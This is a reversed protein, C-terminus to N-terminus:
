WRYRSPFSIASGNTSFQRTARFLFFSLFLPAMTLLFALAVIAYVYGFVSRLFTFAVKVILAVAIYFLPPFVIMMIAIVAFIANKCGNPDQKSLGAADTAYQMTKGLFSDLYKYIDAGTADAGGQDKFLLGGMVISIGERAGTVLFRYGIGILYEAQTAFVWVFAIKILFMQFERATAPIIGTTFGIGFFVVAITLVANIAPIAEQIIGCYMSGMLNASLHEMNCVLFSFVNDFAIAHPCQNGPDYLTGSAQGNSCSFNGWGGAAQAFAPHAFLLIAAAFFLAWFLNSRWHSWGTTM